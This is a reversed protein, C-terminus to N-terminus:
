FGWYEPREATGHRIIRCDSCEQSGPTGFRRRCFGPLSSFGLDQPKVFLRKFSSGCVSFYGFIQEEPQNVSFLNGKVNGPPPDFLSGNINIISKIQNWYNFERETLAYQSVHFCYKFAFRENIDTSAVPQESLARGGLREADFIYLQNFDVNNKIWCFKSGPGEYEHFEYEGEVRWRFKQKTAPEVQTNAKVFVQEVEVLQSLNNIFTFKGVEYTLSDIPPSPLLLAPESKIFTQDPLEAELWYQRGAVGQVMTSYTGPTASEVFPIVTGADDHVTVKAQSIPEYINDQGLGLVASRFIEIKHERLSDSILGVITIKQLDQDIKLNVEDVCGQSLILTWFVINLLIFCLMRM